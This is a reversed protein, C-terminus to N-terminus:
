TIMFMITAFKFPWGCGTTMSDARAQMLWWLWGLKESTNSLRRPPQHATQRDIRGHAQLLGIAV